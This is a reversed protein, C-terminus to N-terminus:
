PSSRGISAFPPHSKVRLRSVHVIHRAGVLALLHRNPNLEANLPNIDTCFAAVPGCVASDSSAFMAVKYCVCLWCLLMLTHSVKNVLNEGIHKPIKAAM